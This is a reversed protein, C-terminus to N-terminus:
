VGIQHRAQPGGKFYIIIIIIITLIIIIISIPLVNKLIKYNLKICLSKINKSFIFVVNKFNFLMKIIKFGKFFYEHCHPGIYRHGIEDVNGM